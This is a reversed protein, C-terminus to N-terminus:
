DICIVDAECSSQAPATPTRVADQRCLMSGNLLVSRGQCNKSPVPLVPVPESIRTAPQVNHQPQPLAHSQPQSATHGNALWHVTVDSTAFPEGAGSSCMRTVSQSQGPLKLPIPQVHWQGPSPRLYRMSRVDQPATATCTSSNCLNVSLSSSTIAATQGGTAPMHIIQISTSGDPQEIRVIDINVIGHCTQYHERILSHFTSSCPLKIDCQHCRFMLDQKQCNEVRLLSIEDESDSSLSIVEDDAATPSSTHMAAAMKEKEEMRAVYDRLRQSSRWDSIEEATLREMRVSCLGYKGRLRRSRGSLGTDFRRCFRKRDARSFCYRHYHTDAPLPRYKLPFERQRLRGYPMGKVPTHCFTDYDLANDSGALCHSVTYPNLPMGDNHLASTVCQLTRSGLPSSIDINLLKRLRSYPQVVRSAVDRLPRVTGFLDKICSYQQHSIQSEEDDDDIVIVNCEIVESQKQVVSSQSPVLDFLGLFSNRDTAPLEEDGTRLTSPTFSRGYECDRSVKSLKSRTTSFSGCKHMPQQVSDFLYSLMMVAAAVFICVIIEDICWELCFRPNKKSIWM